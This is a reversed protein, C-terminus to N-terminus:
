KRLLGRETFLKLTEPLSGKRTGDTSAQGLQLAAISELVKQAAPAMESKLGYHQFTRDLEAMEQARRAAHVPLAAINRGAAKTVDPFREGFLEILQDDLESNRACVLLETMLSQVGKTLGAYIVKFASAQGIKPGLIRVSFGSQELQRIQEAEAGSVYTVTGQTLKASSGIICGDVFDVEASTFVKGIEQATMPSIANADLFLVRKGKIASLSEAVDSAVKLAAGPVVLSVILDAEALLEPMSAVTRVGANVARERTVASRDKGWTLVEVGHEILLRAWNFGMEGISIIGIRQFAM